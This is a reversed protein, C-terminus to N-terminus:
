TSVTTSNPESISKGSMGSVSQNNGSMQNNSSGFHVPTPNTGTVVQFDDTRWEDEENGASYTNPKPTAHPNLNRFGSM